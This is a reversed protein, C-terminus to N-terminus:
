KNQLVSLMQRHIFGNTALIEKEFINFKGNKFDSVKGGAESLILSGAAVDWPYLKLEWFGDFRGSAVYCLNLAASGDRRVAQAVKIVRVFNNINNIESTRIDYPFGTSLLSRDLEKVTSIKIRKGNLFAGNGKIAWFMEERMPDFVVGLIIERNWELAISICFIPYGHAYNTTGDLPDIIWRYKNGKEKDLGEEALFDHQPFHERIGNYIINQAERDCNTVLNVSGKYSVKIDKNFKKRLMEGADRATKKALALYENWDMIYEM